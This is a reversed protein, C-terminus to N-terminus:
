AATLRVAALALVEAIGTAAAEGDASAFQRAGESTHFAWGGPRGVGVLSAPVRRTVAGFDTAFPLAPPDVVPARGAARLAELVAERVRPDPAISPVPVGPEWRAPLRARLAAALGDLGPEEDAWLLFRAMMALGGGQEVDGDVELHELMVRDRDFGELAGLAAGAADMPPQPDNPGLSRQGSVRATDRRMWRSATWATDMPEPHAYLAADLDDWAGAAASLAKGGGRAVTGPAHIEDAPCGMVVVRGALEDRLSALALAAGAVGAAIPGHGCSHVPVISGDPQVAAVADYLAALGVARGGLAGELTARFATDMGGVGREVRLGAAELVLCLHEACAHEAHALEPHEQVFRFTELIRPRVAAVADLVRADQGAPPM